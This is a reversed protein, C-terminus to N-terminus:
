AYVLCQESYLGILTNLLHSHRVHLDKFSLHPTPIEIKEILKIFSERTLMRTHKRHIRFVVGGM